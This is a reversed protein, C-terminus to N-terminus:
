YARFIFSLPPLVAAIFSIRSLHHLLFRHRWAFLWRVSILLSSTSPTGTRTAALRGGFSYIAVCKSCRTLPVDFLCVSSSLSIKFQGFRGLSSGLLYGGLTAVRHLRLKSRPSSTRSTPTAGVVVSWRAFAAGSSSPPSVRSSSTTRTKKQGVYPVYEMVRAM